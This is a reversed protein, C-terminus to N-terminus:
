EKRKIYICSNELTVEKEVYLFLNAEFGRETLIDNLGIVRSEDILHRATLGLEEMESGVLQSKDYGTGNKPTSRNGSLAWSAIRKLSNFDSAKEIGMNRLYKKSNPLLSEYCCAHRCCMAITLGRLRSGPQLLSSNVLLNFTLDTAAGCLHKSIVVIEEHDVDELFADLNIDKIDIRTRKIRPSFSYKGESADLRIKSDMKMRNVGRDILGFGYSPYESGDGSTLDKQICLGVYRSLEAKGCGFELYFAKPSLLGLDKMNGILSAQQITYKKNLIEELRTNLYDHIKVRLELSWIKDQFKQLIKIFGDMAFNDSYNENTPSKDLSLNLDRTYWTENTEKPRANCKRLHLQLDQAWVTHNNDYPCPIRDNENSKDFIMHESCYIRGSKKQMRCRRGKKEMFFECQNDLKNRKRECENEQAINRTSEMALTEVKRKTM